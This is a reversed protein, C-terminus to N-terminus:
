KIKRIIDIPFNSGKTSDDESKEFPFTKIWLNFISIKIKSISQTIQNLRVILDEFSMAYLKYEVIFDYLNINQFSADNKFYNSVYNNLQLQTFMQNDLIKLECLIEIVKKKTELKLLTDRLQRDQNLVHKKRYTQKFGNYKFLDM